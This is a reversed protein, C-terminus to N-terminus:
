WTLEVDQNVIRWALIKIEAALFMEDEEPVEPIIKETPDYVPTGLGVLKTIKTQYAHNRVVGYYGTANKKATALADGELDGSFTPTALHRIDFYYYTKGGEWVKAHGLGKLLADVDDSDMEVESKEDSLETPDESYWTYDAATETLQVFVYYRGGEKADETSPDLLDPNLSGATVIEIADEDIESYSTGDNKTYWPKTTLNNLYAAKLTSVTIKNGAYEALPIANGSKDVLTAAIIVQTPTETTADAYEPAEGAGKGANEPLYIVNTASAEYTFPNDIDEYTGYEIEFGETTASPNYAWFSRVFQSMSWPQYPTKFLNASTNAENPWAANVHKVLYSENATATAAFRDFHVYILDDDNQEGTNNNYVGTSFAYYNDDGEKALKTATLNNESDTAQGYSLDVKAVLREVYVTVPNAEATEKTPYLKDALSVAGTTNEAYVSSSMVFTGAEHEEYKGVKGVVADRTVMGTLADVVTNPNLVAIVEDPMDSVKGTAKDVNRSIIVTATLISEVTNPMDSGNTDFGDTPVTFDVFSTSGGADVPAATGNSYFFFFRVKSVKSETTPDGAVFDGNDTSPLEDARTGGNAAAIRITLFNAEADSTEPTVVPEENTACAALGFAMALIFLKKM